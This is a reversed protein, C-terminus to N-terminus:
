YVGVNSSGLAVGSTTPRTVVAPTYDVELYWREAETGYERSRWFNRATAGPEEDSARLILSVINSRNSIADTVYDLLGTIEDSGTGSAETYTVVGPTVDDFDGGVSSWSIPADYDNWTSNLEVWTSPRTCRSLKASFGGNTVSWVERVLKASNITATAISSVDFNVIPRDIALKTEGSFFTGIAISISAGANLDENPVVGILYNDISAQIQITAM